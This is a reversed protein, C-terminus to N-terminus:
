KEVYSGGNNLCKDYCPVLTQIRERYFMAAQSSLWKKVAEKVDDNNLFHQGALFKKLCLFPHFDSTALDPSYPPTIANNGALPYSSPKLKLLPTHGLMTMFGYLDALLCTEGKTRSQM